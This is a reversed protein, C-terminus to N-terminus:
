LGVEDNNGQKQKGQQDFAAEATNLIQRVRAESAPGIGIDKVEAVAFDVRLLNVLEIKVNGAKHAHGRVGGFRAGLHEDDGGGIDM